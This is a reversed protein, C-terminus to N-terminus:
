MKTENIENQILNTLAVMENLDGYIFEFKKLSSVKHFIHFHHRGFDSQRSLM